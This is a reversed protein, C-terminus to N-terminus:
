AGTYNAIAARAALRADLLKFRATETAHTTQFMPLGDIYAQAEEMLDLADKLADAKVRLAAMDRHLLAYAAKVDEITEEEM